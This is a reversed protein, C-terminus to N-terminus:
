FILSKMNNYYNNMFKTKDNDLMECVKDKDSCVKYHYDICEINDNIRSIQICNIFDIDYQVVTHQYKILLGLNNKIINLVYRVDISLIYDDNYEIIYIKDGPNLDKFAKM